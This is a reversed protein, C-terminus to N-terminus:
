TVVSFFAAVLFRMVVFGVAMCFVVLAGVLLLSALMAVLLVV